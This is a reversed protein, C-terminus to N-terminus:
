RGFKCHAFFPPFFVLAKVKPRMQVCGAKSSAPSPCLAMVEGNQVAPPMTESKALSSSQFMSHLPNRLDNFLPSTIKPLHLSTQNLINSFPPTLNKGSNMEKLPCEPPQCIGKQPYQCDTIRNFLHASFATDGTLSNQGVPGKLLSYPLISACNSSLPSVTSISSGFQGSLPAFPDNNLPVPSPSFSVDLPADSLTNCPVTLYSIFPNGKIHNQNADIVSALELM